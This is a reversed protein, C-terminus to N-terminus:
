LVPAPSQWEPLSDRIRGSEPRLDEFEWCEDSDGGNRQEEEVRVKEDLKFLLKLIKLDVWKHFKMFKM